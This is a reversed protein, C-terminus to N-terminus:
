RGLFVFNVSSTSITTMVFEIYSIKMAKPTNEISPYIDICEEIGIFSNILWPVPNINITNGCINLVIPIIPCTIAGNSNRDMNNAPSVDEKASKSGKSEDKHSLNPHLLFFPTVIRVITAHM